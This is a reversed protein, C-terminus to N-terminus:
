YNKTIIPLFITSGGVAKDAYFAIDYLTPTSLHDPSSQLTARYRLYQSSIVTTFTIENTGAV